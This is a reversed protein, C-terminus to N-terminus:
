LAPLSSDILASGIAASPCLHFASDEVRQKVDDESFGIWRNGASKAADPVNAAVIATPCAGYRM